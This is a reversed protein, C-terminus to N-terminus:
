RKAINDSDFNPNYRGLIYDPRRQDPQVCVAIIRYGKNLTEQLEDTCTDEKLMLENYTAILGGGVHVNVKQNWNMNDLLNKNIKNINEFKDEIKQLSKILDESAGSSQHISKKIKYEYNCKPAFLMLDVLQEPDVKIYKEGRTDFMEGDKINFYNIEKGNKYHKGEKEELDNKLYDGKDLIGLISFDEFDKKHIYIKENNIEKYTLNLSQAESEKIILNKNYFEILTIM